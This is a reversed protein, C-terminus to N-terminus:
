AAKSAVGTLHTFGFVKARARRVLDKSRATAAGRLGACRPYLAGIVRLDLDEFGGESLALRLSRETFFQM